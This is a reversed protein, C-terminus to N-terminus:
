AHVLSRRSQEPSATVQESGASVSVIRTEGCLHLAASRILGASLLL